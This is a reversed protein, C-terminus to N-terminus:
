HGRVDLADRLSEGALNLALVTASIALGPLVVLRPAILLFSRGDALMSGWSPTPPAVGLGLFSLGAEAVVAGAIGFSAQV